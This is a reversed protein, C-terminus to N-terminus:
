KVFYCNNQKFQPCKVKIKGSMGELVDEMLEVKMPDGIGCMRMADPTLSLELFGSCATEPTPCSAAVAAAEFTSVKIGGYTTLQFIVIKRTNTIQKLKFLSFLLHLNENVSVFLNIPKFCINLKPKFVFILGV